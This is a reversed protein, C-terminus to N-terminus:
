RHTLKVIVLPKEARVRLLARLALKSPDLAAGVELRGGTPPSRLM